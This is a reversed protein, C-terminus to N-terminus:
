SSCRNSRKISCCKRARAQGGYSPSSHRCTTSSDCKSCSCDGCATSHNSASGSTYNHRVDLATVTLQATVM